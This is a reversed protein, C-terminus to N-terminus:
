GEAREFTAAVIKTTDYSIEGAVLSEERTYNLDVPVGRDIDFLMTGETANQLVVDGEELELGGWDQSEFAVEALRIGAGSEVKILTYRTTTETPIVLDTGILVTEHNEKYEVTGGVALPERPLHPLALLEPLLKLLAAGPPPRVLEETGAQAEAVKADVAALLARRTANAPHAGSADLDVIGHPTMVWAGTGQAKVYAGPRDESSPELSGQLTVEDLGVITWGVEVADNRTKLGLASRVDLTAQAYEGGGTTTFDVRAQQVLDVTLAGYRIQVAKSQNASTGQAVAPSTSATSKPKGCGGLTLLAVAVAIPTKTLIRPM